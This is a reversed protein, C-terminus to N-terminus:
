VTVHVSPKRGMLRKLVLYIVFASLLSDGAPVTTLTIVSNATVFGVASSLGWALLAPWGIAPNRKLDAVDYHRGRLFFYDALYIGAVPPTAIGIATLFVLFHDMIGMLALSTGFIAAVLTIKWERAKTAITALTMSTSYLNVTSNTWASLVLIFLAPLTLGIGIMIKMIELEGVAVSPIASVLFILPFGLALGWVSIIAQRTNRAFRAVDPALVAAQISSAVITSLALGVTMDGRGEFSMVSAWDRQGLALYVAYVLFSAMLPAAVQALREIARFGFIATITMLICTVIVFLPRPVTLGYIEQVAQQIARGFIDATAGFYGLLAVAMLANVLKAGDRGFSFQIIMYSSLGTRAGVISTLSALVGLLLCGGFFTRAADAIGLQQGITAGIFFIPLTLGITFVILGIKWGSVRREPPVPARFHDSVLEEM